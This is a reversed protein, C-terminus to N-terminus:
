ATLTGFCVEPRCHRIHPMANARIPPLPSARAYVRLVGFQFPTTRFPHSTHARGRIKDMFLNDTHADPLDFLCNIAIRALLCVCAGMHAHALLFRTCLVLMTTLVCVCMFATGLVRKAALLNPRAATFCAIKM